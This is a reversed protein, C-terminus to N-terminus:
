DLLRRHYNIQGVHYELHALLHMLIFISPHEQGQKKEPFPSYLTEDSINNLVNKVMIITADIDNNIKEIPINKDSFEKDRERVYGTKGLIAGIFHNLNGILHLCLNGASNNVDNATKWINDESKYLRIEEKLKNLDREFIICLAQTVM